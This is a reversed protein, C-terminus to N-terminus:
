PNFGLDGAIAMATVLEPSGVFDHKDARKSSTVTSRTFSQTENKKEAGERDVNRYM